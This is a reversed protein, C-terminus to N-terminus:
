FDIDAGAEPDFLHTTSGPWREMAFCIGPPLVRNTSSPVSLRISAGGAPCILCRGTAVALGKRTRPGKLVPFGLTLRFFYQGFSGAKCGAM